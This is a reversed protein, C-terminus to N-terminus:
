TLWSLWSKLISRDNFTVFIMMSLIVALGIRFSIEQTRESLPKRRIAEIAYFLLHGGDLLPIPFLNILGVSVSILAIFQVVVEPGLQAAKGAVDAIRIPGGLQSYDQRGRVVDYLFTLTGTVINWTQTTAAQVAGIPGYTQHRITSTKTDVQIGIVPRRHKGTLKDELERLEPRVVLTLESGQRDIRFELSQEPSTSVIQQLDRFSQIEQDQIALVLDGPKFGATAAPTEPVVKGIRPEIISQGYLMFMAAFIVISLLFNAAPGAAVVAARKWVPKLHFSGARQEPTMKAIAENSPTSAAGEDDIFKVYGGLPLAAFRWRTGHRDEYGFIEPGFGISFAKVAVGCWRAVLFHGLEHIFVIVSLVVVFALAFTFFNTIVSM